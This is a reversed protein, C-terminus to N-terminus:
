SCACAPVAVDVPHINNSTEHHIDVSSVVATLECSCHFFRPHIQLDVRIEQQLPRSVRARTHLPAVCRPRIHRPARTEGGRDMHRAAAAAAQRAAARRRLKKIPRLRSDQSDSSALGAHRERERGGGGGSHSAAGRLRVLRAAARTYRDRSDSVNLAARAGSSQM